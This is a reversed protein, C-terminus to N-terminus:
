SIVVPTLYPDKKQVAEKYEKYNEFSKDNSEKLLEITKEKTLEEPVELTTDENEIGKQLLEMQCMPDMILNQESKMYKEQTVDIKSLVATTSFNFSQEEKNMTDLIVDIYKEADTGYEKLRNEQAQKGIDKSRFKSFDGIIKMLKMMCKKEILGGAATELFFDKLKETIHKDEEESIDVKPVSQKVEKSEEGSTSVFTIAEQLKKIDVKVKKDTGKLNFRLEDKDSDPEKLYTIVDVKDTLSKVAVSLEALNLDETKGEALRKKISDLLSKTKLIEGTVCLDRERSVSAESETAFCLLVPSIEKFNAWFDSDKCEATIDAFIDHDPVAEITGYPTGATLAEMRECQEGVRKTLTEIQDASM